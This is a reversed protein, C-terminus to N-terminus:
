QYEVTLLEALFYYKEVFHPLQKLL